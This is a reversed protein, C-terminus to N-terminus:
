EATVARLVDVRSARFAPFVAALIGFLGAAVAYIVLNNGPVATETIGDAHLSMVLALGLGAGVGLGLVAGLLAIIVSEWTIMERTQGRTMGLARLLGLERTRELVSLALTNIIGVVAIVIALGLLVYILNLFANLGTSILDKYQAKTMASLLPYSKLDQLLSSDATSLSEGPAPNALIVDDRATVVHPDLTALSVAFGNFISDPTYIGGITVTVRDGRPFTMTVRSGTHLGDTAATTSDVLGTDLTGISSASGSSMQLSLVQGLNAPDLASLGTSVNQVLVDSTRLEAIDTLRPDAQLSSAVAPAFGSGHQDLVVLQARVAGDISSDISAEVSDTLVAIATVLALGIMLASATLATRRPNRRANEGALRGTAGRFQRAPWGLVSAVPRVLVPALLAMALFIALVSLGLVELNPGTNVNAGFLSVLLAAVGAVLLIAGATIRGRPLGQTEPLAERLAAIPPIRTARRAPLSAALVTVITGVLLSVIFSNAGVTLSVTSSFIRVLLGAVLIGLVFGLLSSFVGTIAAETVVERFVQGRTAGVARLLALEQTRQAVLISFTNVILFSGVFVAIFAFVLLPTGVFNNITTVATQEAQNTAQQGTQVTVGDARLASAIRSELQLDTVGSQTSVDIQDYSGNAGLLQEASAGTFLVFGAGAASTQGGFSAIGSIQFPQAAGAAYSVDVTEGVTLHERNAIESAVVMDTAAAPARGSVLHYPSLQLDSIWNGGLTPAGGSSTVLTGNRILAIGSRSLVGVADQVGPVARAQPLVSSSVPLYRNTEGVQPRGKVQVAVGKDVSSLVGEFTSRITDTLVLTGAVFTVGLIIAIATLALRLKHSLLSRLSVKLM